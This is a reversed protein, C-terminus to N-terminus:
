CMSSKCWAVLAETDELEMELTKVSISIQSVFDVNPLDSKLGSLSADRLIFGQLNKLWLVKAFNKSNFKNLYFNKQSKTNLSFITLGELNPFLNLIYYDLVYEWVDYALICSYITLTLVTDFKGLLGLDASQRSGKWIGSKWFVNKLWIIHFSPFNQLVSFFTLEQLKTNEIELWTVKDSVKIRHRSEKRELYGEVNITVGKLNPFTAAIAFLYSTTIVDYISLIHIYGVFDGTWSVQTLLELKVKIYNEESKSHLTYDFKEKPDAFDIRVVDSDYKKEEAIFAETNLNLIFDHPIERTVKKAMRFFWGAIFWLSIAFITEKSLLERDGTRPTNM